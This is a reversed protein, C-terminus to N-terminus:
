FLISLGPKGQLWKELLRGTMTLLMEM